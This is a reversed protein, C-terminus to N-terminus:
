WPLWTGRVARHVCATFVFASGSVLLLTAIKHRLAWDVQRQFRVEGRDLGRALLRSEGALVLLSALIIVSGGPGPIFINVIGFALLGLGLLLRWLRLPHLRHM